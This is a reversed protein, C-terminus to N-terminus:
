YGQPSSARDLIERIVAGKAEAYWQVYRWERAALERKTSLYYAFDDPHTRLRDRFLLHRQHEETGPPFVHLNINTDPGKFLRHEYWDPERVTLRYGAAELAPVYASEDASDPVILDIDIIPKAPLGPVSTSGVHEVALATQGLLAVLRDREREFLAPWAPDYEALEIAANHQKLEGVSSAVLYEESLEDAM